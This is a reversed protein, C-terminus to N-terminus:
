YYSVSVLHYYGGTNCSGSFTCGKPIQIKRVASKLNLSKLTSPIKLNFLSECSITLNEVGEPVDIETVTQSNISVDKMTPSLKIKTILLSSASTTITSFETAVSNSLDLERLKYNNLFANDEIVAPISM